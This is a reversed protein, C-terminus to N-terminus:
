AVLTRSFCTRSQRCALVRLVLAQPAVTQLSVKRLGYRQQAYRAAIAVNNFLCFGM